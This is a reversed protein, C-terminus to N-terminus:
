SHENWKQNQEHGAKHDDAVGVEKRETEQKKM